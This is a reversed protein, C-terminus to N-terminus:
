RKSFQFSRRAKASATNRASSWAALRPDPLRGGEPHRASGARLQDARPQHRAAGRRGPRVARRRRGHLYVDFQNYRDAVLFPQTILMRLVPRAFYQVSRRATSPSRARAPSSGSARSPTRAGAPPTPAASRTASRSASRSTPRMPPPAAPARHRGAAGADKLDALTRTQTGSMPSLGEQEESQARRCRAHTPQQGDHPHTPAPM